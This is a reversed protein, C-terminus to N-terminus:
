PMQTKRSEGFKSGTQRWHTLPSPPWRLNQPFNRLVIIESSDGSTGGDEQTPREFVDWEV